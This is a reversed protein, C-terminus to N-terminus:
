NSNNEENVKSRRAILLIALIVVQGIVMGQPVTVFKTAPDETIATEGPRFPESTVAPGDEFQQVSADVILLPKATTQALAEVGIVAAVLLLVRM